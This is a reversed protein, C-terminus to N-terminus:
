SSTDLAVETSAEGEGPGTVKVSISGRATEKVSSTVKLVSWKGDAAVGSNTCSLGADSDECSWGDGETGTVELSPLPLTVAVVLAEGPAEGSGGGGVVVSFEFSSGHVYWAGTNDLAVGRGKELSVELDGSPGSTTTEVPSTTTPASTTSSSGPSAGGGGACGSLVFLLAFGVITRM